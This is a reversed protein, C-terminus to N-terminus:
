MAPANFVVPPHSAVFSQAHPVANPWAGLTVNINKTQGDRVVTLNVTKGAATNHIMDQLQEPGLVKSGNFGVVVDSNKLGARCAPGDQDVYTILAGSTDSLKLASATQPTVEDIHVGLYSGPHPDPWSASPPKPEAVAFTTAAVLAVVVAMKITTVRRMM